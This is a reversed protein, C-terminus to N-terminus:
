SFVDSYVNSVDPDDLGFGVSTSANQEDDDDADEAEVADDTPAHGAGSSAADKSLRRPSKTLSQRRVRGPAADARHWAIVLRKDKFLVGERATQLPIRDPWMLLESYKM